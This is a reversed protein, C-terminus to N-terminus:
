EPTVFINFARVTAPLPKDAVFSFQGQGTWSGDFTLRFTGSALTDTAVAPAAPRERLEDSEGTDTLIRLGKTEYVDVDVTVVRMKRGLRSGENTALPIRLLKGLSTYPIGFTIKEATKANPLTLVGAASVTANPLVLGDALISVETNALWTLGSVTNTAVGEYTGGCDVFFADEISDRLFDAQLTEVYQVQAGNVTRRNITWLIDRDAGPVVCASLVSGGFNQPTFGIVKEYRDLATCTLTGDALVSWLRRHPLQQFHLEKIPSDFLHESTVSLEPRVLSNVQYDYYLDHMSHGFRAAHVTSPGVVVPRTAAVGEATEVKVRVNRPGFAQDTDSAGLSRISRPMGMQLRPAEHLWLIEDGAIIDYAGGNDDAVTGDKDSPTFVETLNSYTYGIFRPSTPTSAWVVRGDFLAVAGPYGTTDSFAGLRWTASATSGGNGEEWGVTIVTTSTVGTIYGWSYNGDFQIRIARGVDTSVFGSGGNIPTVSSATITSSGGTAPPASTSMTVATDNIPLYPGDRFEVDSFAWSAHAARVLKKPKKTMSRLAIYLTDGSQTWNISRLDGEDYQSSVEYPAGSAVVQGSEVWFRVYQHGFELAYAQSASFVFDVFRTDRNSLKAAGMYKTGSRRRVGGERLVLWNELREASAQYFEIDQRAHALPSVEGRTMTPKLVHM